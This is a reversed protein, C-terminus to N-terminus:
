RGSGQGVGPGNPARALYGCSCTTGMGEERFKRDSSKQSAFFLVSSGSSTGSPWRGAESRDVECLRGGDKRKRGGQGAEDNAPSWDSRRVDNDRGLGGDELLM